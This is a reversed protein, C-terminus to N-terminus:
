RPSKEVYLHWLLFLCQLPIIWKVFSPQDTILFILRCPLILLLQFRYFFLIRVSHVPAIISGIFSVVRCHAPKVSLASNDLALDRFLPSVPSRIGKKTHISNREISHLPNTFVEGNIDSCM